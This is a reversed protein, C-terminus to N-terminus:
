RGLEDDMWDVLKMIATWAVIGIAFIGVIIAALMGCVGLIGFIVNMMAWNVGM